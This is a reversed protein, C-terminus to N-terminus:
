IMVVLGSSRSLSCYCVEVQVHGNILDTKSFISIEVNVACQYRNREGEHAKYQQGPLRKHGQHAPEETDHHDERLAGETQPKGESYRHGGGSERGVFWVLEM